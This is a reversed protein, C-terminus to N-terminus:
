FRLTLVEAFRPSHIVLRAAAKAGQYLKIGAYTGCASIALIAVFQELLGVKWRVVWYAAAIIVTQHLLYWEYGIERGYRLEPGERKLWKRGVGLITIVWAWAGVAYLIWFVIYGVAYPQPLESPLVGSLTGIVIAVTATAAIGAIWRWQADIAEGLSPSAALIFGYVYAVFLLAHNSWDSTLMHREPFVRWLIMRELVLPLALWLLGHPSSCRRTISQLTRNGRSHQWFRFLPLAIISYAILHGLFWLHGWTLNGQPYLGEFFHPYFAFFSGSFQGHLRRELYVQPPILVLVGAVLPLLVRKLRERIYDGNGRRRLSYFASVGALLMFLPMIWPAMLAVVEGAARSRELSTIHWEDWPNFVECIHILFVGAVALVRLRDVYVLRPASYSSVFPYDLDSLRGGRDTFSVGM